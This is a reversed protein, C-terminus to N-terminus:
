GDPDVPGAGPVPFDRTRDRGPHSMVGYSLPLAGKWLM